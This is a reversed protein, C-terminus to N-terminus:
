KLTTFDIKQSKFDTLVQKVKLISDEADKNIMAAFDKIPKVPSRPWATM